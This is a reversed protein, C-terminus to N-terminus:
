FYILNCIEFISICLYRAGIRQQPRRSEPLLLSWVKSKIRTRMMTWESGIWKSRYTLTLYRRSFWRQSLTQLKQSLGWALPSSNWSYRIFQVTSVHHPKDIMRWTRSLRLHNNPVRRPSTQDENRTRISSQLWTYWRIQDLRRRTTLERLMALETSNSFSLKHKCRINSM